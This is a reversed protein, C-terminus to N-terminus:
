YPFIPKVDEKDIPWQLLRGPRDWRHQMISQGGSPNNAGLLAYLLYMGLYSSYFSSLHRNVKVVAASAFAVRSPDCSPSNEMTRLLRIEYPNAFTNIGNEKRSVTILIGEKNLRICYPLPLGGEADVAALLSTNDMDLYEIVFEDGVPLFRNKTTDFQLGFPKIDHENQLECMRVGVALLAKLTRLSNRSWLRGNWTWEIMSWYTGGCIGRRRFYEEPYVPPTNEDRFYDRRLNDEALERDHAIYRTTYKVSSAAEDEEMAEYQEFYELYQTYQEMDLQTHYEYIDSLYNSNM